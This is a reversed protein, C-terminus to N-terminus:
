IASPECLECKPMPHSQHTGDAFKNLCPTEHGIPHAKRCEAPAGSCVDVSNRLPGLRGIQWNLLRDFELQYDIKLGGLRKTDLKWRGHEGAGVLNDLSCGNDKSFQM